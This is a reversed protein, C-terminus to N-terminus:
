CRFDLNEIKIIAGALLDFLDDFQLRHVISLYIMVVM